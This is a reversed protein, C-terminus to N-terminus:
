VYIAHVLCLFFISSNLNQKYHVISRVHQKQQSRTSSKLFGLPQSTDSNRTANFQYWKGINRYVFDVFIHFTQLTSVISDGGASHAEKRVYTCLRQVVSLTNSYLLPVDAITLTCRTFNSYGFVSKVIGDRPLQSKINNFRRKRLSKKRMMAYNLVTSRQDRLVIVSRLYHLMSFYDLCHVLLFFLM